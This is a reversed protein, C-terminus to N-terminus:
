RIIANHYELLGEMPTQIFRGTQLNMASAAKEFIDRFYWGISGVVHIPLRNVNTYQMVNRILFRSFEDYVLDYIAPETVHDSIFLTFKAAFRNPFPKRYIQELIDDKTLEYKDFFKTIIDKPLQNKLIDGLLRKGIIAGSGEDGLIFGLPPVQQIITNGNYHCSNSGTGLICAIGEKNQCLARAAAMLDSEVEIRSAGFFEQLANSVVSNVSKNACGAGYFFITNVPFDQLPFDKRLTQIITPSDQYFPNIGSTFITEPLSTSERLLSWQTKSSGSDAIIIM